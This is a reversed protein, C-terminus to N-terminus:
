RPLLLAAEEEGEEHDEAIATIVASGIAGVVLLVSIAAVVRETRDDGPWNERTVGLFSVTLAWLALLAGIVHFANM